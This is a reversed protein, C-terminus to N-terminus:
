SNSDLMKDQTKFYSERPPQPNGVALNREPGPPLPSQLPLDKENSTYEINGLCSTRIHPESKDIITFGTIGPTPGSPNRSVKAAIRYYLPLIFNSHSSFPAGGVVSAADVPTKNEFFNYFWQNQFCKSRVFVLIM